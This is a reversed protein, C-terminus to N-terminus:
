LVRGSILSPMQPSCPPSGSETFNQWRIPSVYTLQEGNRTGTARSAAACAAISSSAAPFAFRVLYAVFPVFKVAKLGNFENLEHSMRKIFTNYEYRREYQCITTSIRTRAAMLWTKENSSGTMKRWTM